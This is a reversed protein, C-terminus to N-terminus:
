FFDAKLFWFSISVPHGITALEWDLIAIIRPEKPHFVINGFRFDGHSICSLQDEEKPVNKQLYAIVEDVM